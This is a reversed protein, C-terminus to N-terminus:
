PSADYRGGTEPDGRKINVSSGAFLEELRRKAVIALRKEADCKGKLWNGKDAKHATYGGEHGFMLDLAVPLTETAM